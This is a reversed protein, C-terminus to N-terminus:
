FFFIHRHNLFEKWPESVKNWIETESSSDSSLATIVNGNESVTLTGTISEGNSDVTKIILLNKSNEQVTTVDGSEIDAVGFLRSHNTCGSKNEYSEYTTWGKISFVYWPGFGINDNGARWIVGNYVELFNGEKTAAEDNSDSSCSLLLVSLLLLSFKKM